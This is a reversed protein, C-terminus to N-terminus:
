DNIIWYGKIHSDRSINWSDHWEGAKGSDIFGDDYVVFIVQQPDIPCGDVTQTNKTWLSKGIEAAAQVIALRTAACSDIGHMECLFVDDATVRTDNYYVNVNMRCKVALRFADGDNLHPEWVRGGQDKQIFPYHKGIAMAAYFLTEDNM